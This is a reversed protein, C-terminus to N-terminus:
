FARRAEDYGERYGASDRRPQAIQEYTQHKGSM